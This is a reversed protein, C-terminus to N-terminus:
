QVYVYKEFFKESLNTHFTIKAESKWKLSYAHTARSTGTNSALIKIFPFSSQQIIEFYQNRNPNITKCPNRNHSSTNKIKTSIVSEKDRFLM